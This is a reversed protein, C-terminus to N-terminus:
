PRLQRSNSYSEGNGAQPFNSHDLNFRLPRRLIV